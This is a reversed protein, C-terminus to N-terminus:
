PNPVATGTLEISERGRKVTLEVKDGVNLKRIYAHLRRFSSLKEGALHTIVDGARIGMRDATGGPLVEAIATQRKEEIFAAGMAAKPEKAEASSPAVAIVLALAVRIVFKGMIREENPNGTL